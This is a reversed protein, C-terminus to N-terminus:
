NPVEVRLALMPHILGPMRKCNQSLYQAQTSNRINLYLEMHAEQHSGM